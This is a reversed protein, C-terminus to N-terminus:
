YAVGVTRVATSSRADGDIELRVAYVGPPVLGGSDDRGNWVLDDFRDMDYLGSEGKGDFLHRVRRGALDFIDVRIGAEGVVAVVEYSIRAQDNQLDGNPTIVGDVAFNRILGGRIAASSLVTVGSRQASDDLDLQAANGEIVDQFGEGEFLLARCSFTTSYSLVRAIFHIKIISGDEEIRPFRVTFRDEGVATIAVDGEDTVGDQVAFSHDLLLRDNGDLIEIREVRKVPQGTVIELGDFGQLGASEMTARVAFVFPLDIAVDVERPFVEGVLEDALPPSVFDFSLRELIVASQLESSFFDARIQFYQRPGPSRVRMGEASTALVPNYPASWPSWNVLDERVSGREWEDSIGGKAPLRHYEDRGLPQLPDIVSTPLEVADQLAVRKRTYIFPTTDTGTRTRVQIDTQSTDGVDSQVWRLFGWNAPAQMDIIPSLYRASPVFGEGFVQIKEIEFPITSTAKIQVFRLYRPPDVEVDTVPQRNGTRIEYTEWIPNGGGTLQVGDNVQVAFNRLFLGQNPSTPTPFITNRPFFRIRNVGFRAGLDLNILTGRANRENRELAVDLPGAVIMSELIDELAVDSLDVVNPATIRGGREQLGPVVNEGELLRGPLLAGPFDPAEFELVGSPTLGLVIVNPDVLSRYEPEIAVVKGGTVEGLWSMDGDAGLRLEEGAHVSGALLCCSAFIRDISRMWNM